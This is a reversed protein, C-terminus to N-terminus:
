AYTDVLGPAIRRSAPQPLTEVGAAAEASQLAATRAAEADRAHQRPAEHSVGAHGLMLGADSMLERLRPMAEALAARTDAHQAGFWVNATNQNVSIRVELPGLHEPTLNLSGEQQGRLSMLVVRSGLEDAWRTTGVAGQLTQPLGANTAQQASAPAALNALASVFNANPAPPVSSDLDPSLTGAMSAAAGPTEGARLGPQTAAQSLATELAGADLESAMAGTANADKSAAAARQQLLDLLNTAGKGSPMSDDGAPLGAESGTEPAAPLTGTPATMGPLLGAIMAALELPMDEDTAADAAVQSAPWQAGALATGSKAATGSLSAVMAALFDEGGAAPADGSAAPAASAPAVGLFMATASGMM